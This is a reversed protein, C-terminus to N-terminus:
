RVGAKSENSCVGESYLCSNIAQSKEGSISTARPVARYERRKWAFLRDSGLLADSVAPM